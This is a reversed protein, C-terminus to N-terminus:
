HLPVPHIPPTDAPLLSLHGGQHLRSPHTGRVGRVRRRFPGPLEFTPLFPGLDDQVWRMLWRPWSRSETLILQPFRRLLQLCYPYDVRPDIAFVYKNLVGRRELAEFFAFHLPYDNDGHARQYAILPM